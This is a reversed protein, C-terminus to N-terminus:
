HHRGFARAEPHALLVRVLGAGVGVLLIAAIAAPLGLSRGSPGSSAAHTVVPPTRTASSPRETAPVEPGTTEPDTFPAVLPAPGDTQTDAGPTVPEIVGGPLAPGVYGSGGGTAPATGDPSPLSGGAAPASSGSPPPTTGTADVTGNQQPAPLPLGHINEDATYAYTADKSNAPVPVRVSTGPPVTQKVAGGLTLTADGNNTFTVTGGALVAVTAPNLSAGSPPNGSGAQTYTVTVAAPPPAATSAQPAATAAPSALLLGGAACLLVAVFSARGAAIM